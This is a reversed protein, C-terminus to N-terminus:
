NQDATDLLIGTHDAYVNTLHGWEDVALTEARRKPDIEAEELLARAIKSKVQLGGSISNKLQKRKQSFGAKVVRFFLKDTPVAVFPEPYVDIRLVASDVDPRPWFVGNSLRTVLHPQGYYQVSVALLSMDGPVACIREALEYQVTLVIRTPRPTTHQLLHKLIATSIYYPVNAIVMYPRAEILAAINVELVDAYIVRVNPLDALERELIPQLRRDVEIAIIETTPHATAMMKTLAGTGPGIELIVDGPQVNATEVIKRLTNPDHLFNQGLSKRPDVQYMNMLTKPNSTM